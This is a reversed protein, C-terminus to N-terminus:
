KLDTEVPPGAKQLAAVLKDWASDFARVVEPDFQSGEGRRIEERAEEAALSKRYPRDSTMADFADAVAIIRAALPIEEGALGDPYGNGDWREHHSRVSALAPNLFDIQSILNASIQPHRKVIDWEEGSLRDTKSLIQEAIGINGIDHLLLSYVFEKQSLISLGMKEAILRAYIGVRGTHDGGLYAERLDIAQSVAAITQIFTLEMKRLTEEMERSRAREAGLLGQVDMAFQLLQPSDLERLAEVDLVPLDQPLKNQEENMNQKV